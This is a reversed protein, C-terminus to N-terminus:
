PLQIPISSIKGGAGEPKPKPLQIPISGIREDYSAGGKGTGPGIGMKDNSPKSIQSGEQGGGQTSAGTEVLTLKLILRVDSSDVKGDGNMDYVPNYPLRGVAIGIAATADNTTVKGDGDGDGKMINGPKVVNVDQTNFQIPNGASDGANKVSVKGMVYYLQLQSPLVNISMTIEAINGNGSFGESSVFSIVVTEHHWPGASPPNWYLGAWINDNISKTQSDFLSKGILNGKDTKIVRFSGYDSPTVSMSNTYCSGDFPILDVELDMNTLDKVDNVWVPIQIEQTGSKTIYQAGLGITPYNIPVNVPAQAQEVKSSQVESRQGVQRVMEQASATSALITFIFIILIVGKIRM